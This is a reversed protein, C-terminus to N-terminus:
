EGKKKYPELSAVKDVCCEVEETTLNGLVYATVETDYNLYWENEDGNLVALEYLGQPGGYSAPGQIVSVGYGNPFFMKAQKGYLSDRSEFKLDEFKM